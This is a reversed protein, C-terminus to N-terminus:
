LGSQDTDDSGSQLMARRHRYRRYAQDYQSARIFSYATVALGFLVFVVGFLPFFGGVGGIGGGVGAAMFMWIAGFGIAAVGMIISGAKSPPYRNGYRSTVMYRERELEWDRDLRDLAQQRQMQALQERVVEANADAQQGALVRAKAQAFEDDTLAGSRHLEQLKRFEDAISM